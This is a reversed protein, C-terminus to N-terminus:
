QGVRERVQKLLEAETGYNKEFAVLGAHVAEGYGGNRHHYPCLPIVSYNDSRMGMGRANIHHIEAESDPYGNNYCVICGLEAVKNLHEREAKKV